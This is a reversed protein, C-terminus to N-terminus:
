PDARGDAPGSRRGLLLERRDAARWAAAAVLGWIVVSGLVVIGVTLAAATTPRERLWAWGIALGFALYTDVLTIRGWGLALIQEGESAFTGALLGALVLAGFAVTVLPAVLRLGRVVPDTTPVPV